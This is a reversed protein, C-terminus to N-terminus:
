TSLVLSTIFPILVVGFIAILTPTTLTIGLWRQNNMLRLWSSTSTSKRSRALDSRDDPNLDLQHSKM